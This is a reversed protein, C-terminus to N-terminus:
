LHVDGVCFISTRFPYSHIACLYLFIFLLPLSGRCEPVPFCYRSANPLPSSECVLMQSLASLSRSGPLTHTDLSFVPAGSCVSLRSQFWSSPRAHLWVSFRHELACAFRVSVLLEPAQSRAHSGPVAPLTLLVFSLSTGARSTLAPACATPRVDRTM